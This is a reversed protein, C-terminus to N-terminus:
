EAIACTGSVCHAAPEGRGLRTVVCDMGTEEVVTILHEYYATAAEKHVSNVAQWEGCPAPVAACSDGPICLQWDPSFVPRAPREVARGALVYFLTTAAVIVGGGILWRSAPGTM